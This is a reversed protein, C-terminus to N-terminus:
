RAATQHQNPRVPVCSQGKKILTQCAAQADSATLGTLRARWIPKSNVVVREVRPEGVRTARRASQALDRAPKETAFSGLQVAWFPTQSAPPRPEAPTAQATGIIGGRYVLQTTPSKREPPAVNYQAFGANLLAVMHNDREGGSAGGMVVAILRVGGRNASGILNYGSAHTYGTKLGDTGGYSGLLNNHNRIARGRWHFTQTAFYRYQGPFDIIMRRAMIAMDYATTSQYVDPLGSANEFRTNTMGMGRARLTMMQAFREETGGLLEALAAAADNASKTILGLIAEEVTLRSGPMLGLKTPSMSAAHASIPVPQDLTIRRDRLAEFAMYITMVKVLSAPYRRADANIASVITGSSAEIVISAYRTSGVQARGNSISILLLFLLSAVGLAYKHTRSDEQGRM